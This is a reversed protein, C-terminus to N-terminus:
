FGFEMKETPQKEVNPIIRVPIFIGEFIIYTHEM